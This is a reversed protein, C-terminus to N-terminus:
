SALKSMLAATAQTTSEHLNEPSGFGGYSMSLKLIREIATITRDLEAVKIGAKQVFEDATLKSGRHASVNSRWIVIKTFFGSWSDVQGILKEYEETKQPFETAMEMLLARLNRTNARQELLMHLGNVVSDLADHEVTLFFDKFKVKVPFYQDRNEIRSLERWLAFSCSVDILIEEIEYLHKSLSDKM